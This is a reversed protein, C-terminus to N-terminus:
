QIIDTVIGAAITSGGSRLMFRGLEKFDKYLEVCVSRTPEIEVLATSQKM